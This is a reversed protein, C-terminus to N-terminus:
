HGLWAFISIKLMVPVSLQEMLYKGEIGFYAFVHCNRDFHCEGRVRALLRAAGAM